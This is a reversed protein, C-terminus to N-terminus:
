KLRRFCDEIGEEINIKATWGLNNLPEVDAKTLMVDGDRPEVYKFKIDLFHKNIIQKIENLSINSGTGVDFVSGNFNQQSNMCFINADIM